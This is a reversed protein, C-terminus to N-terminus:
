MRIPDREYTSAYEEEAARPDIGVHHRFKIRAKLDNVKDKVTYTSMWHEEKVVIGASRLVLRNDGLGDSYLEASEGDRVVELLDYGYPDPSNRPGLVGSKVLIKLM